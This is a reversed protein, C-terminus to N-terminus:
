KSKQNLLYEAFEVLRNLTAAEEFTITGLTQKEELREISNCILNIMKNTM